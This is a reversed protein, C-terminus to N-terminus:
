YRRKVELFKATTGKTYNNGNTALSSGVQKVDVIVMDRNTVSGSDPCIFDTVQVPPMVVANFQARYMALLTQYITQRGDNVTVEFGYRKPPAVIVPNNSGTIIVEDGEFTQTFGGMWPILEVSM